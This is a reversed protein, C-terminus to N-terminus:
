STEPQEHEKTQWIEDLDWTSAKNVMPYLTTSGLTFWQITQGGVAQIKSKEWLIILWDFVYLPSKKGVGVQINFKIGPKM